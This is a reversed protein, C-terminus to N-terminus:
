RDEFGIGSEWKIYVHDTGGMPTSGWQLCKFVPDFDEAIYFTLDKNVTWPAYPKTCARDQYAYFKDKPYSAKRVVLIKGANSSVPEPTPEPKPQPAPVNGEVTGYVKYAPSDSLTARTPDVYLQIEGFDRSGVVVVDNSQKRKIEYTIGGLKNPELYGSINKAVPVVGMKYFGYRPKADLPKLNIFDGTVPSVSNPIYTEFDFANDYVSKISSHEGQAIMVDLHPGTSKGTNGSAGIKQGKSVSAGVGSNVASLHAYSITVGQSPIYYGIFNGFDIELQSNRSTTFKVKGDAIPHVGEGVNAGYDVGHHYSNRFAENDGFKGGSHIKRVYDDNFIDKSLPQKSLVYSM